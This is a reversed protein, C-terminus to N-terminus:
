CKCDMWEGLDGIERKEKSLLFSMRQAILDGAPPQTMWAFSPRNAWVISEVTFGVGGSAGAVAALFPCAVSVTTAEVVSPM